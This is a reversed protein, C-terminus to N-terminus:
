FGGNSFHKQAMTFAPHDKPIDGGGEESFRALFRDLSAESLLPKFQQLFNSSDLWSELTQDPEASETWSRWHEKPGLFTEAAKHFKESEDVRSKAYEEAGKIIMEPDAGRKLTALWKEYAAAPTAGKKKPYADKFLLFLDDQDWTKPAEKVKPKKKSKKKSKEREEEEESTVPIESAGYPDGNPDKWNTMKSHKAQAKHVIIANEETISILCAQQLSTLASRISRPDLGCMYSLRRPHYVADLREKRERVSICWLAIYLCKASATLDLYVPDGLIFDVEVRAFIKDGRAM